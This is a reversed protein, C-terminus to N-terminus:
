HQRGTLSCKQKDEVKLTGMGGRWSEEKLRRETKDCDEVKGRQTKNERGEAKNNMGEAERVMDETKGREGGKWM